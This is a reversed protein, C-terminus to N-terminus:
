YGTPIGFGRRGGFEGRLLGLGIYLGVILLVTSFLKGLFGFLLIGSSCTLGIALSDGSSSTTISLHGTDFAGLRCLFLLHGLVSTDIELVFAFILEFLLFLEGLAFSSTTVIGHFHILLGLCDHGM